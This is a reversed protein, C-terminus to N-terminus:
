DDSAMTFAPNAHIVPTQVQTGDAFVAQVLTISDPYGLTIFAAGPAPDRATAQQNSM